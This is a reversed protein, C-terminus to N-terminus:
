TPLVSPQQRMSARLRSRAYEADAGPGWTNGCARCFCLPEGATTAKWTVQDRPGDGGVAHCNPCVVRPAHGPLPPGYVPRPTWGPVPLETRANADLVLTLQNCRRHDSLFDDVRAPGAAGQVIAEDPRGIVQCSDCAIRWRWATGTV